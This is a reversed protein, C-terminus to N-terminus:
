IPLIASAMSVAGRSLRDAPRASDRVVARKAGQQNALADRKRIFPGRNLGAHDNCAM